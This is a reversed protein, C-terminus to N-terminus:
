LRLNTLRSLDFQYSCGLLIMVASEVRRRFDAVTRVLQIAAAGHFAIAGDVVAAGAIASSSDFWRSFVQFM